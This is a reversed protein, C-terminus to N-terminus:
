KLGKAKEYKELAESFEINGYKKLLLKLFDADVSYSGSYTKVRVYKCSLHGYKDDQLRYDSLIYEIKDTGKYTKKKPDYPGM